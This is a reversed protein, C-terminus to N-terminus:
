TVVLTTVPRSCTGEGHIYSSWMESRETKALRQSAKAVRPPVAMCVSWATSVRYMPLSLFMPQMVEAKSRRRTSHVSTQRVDPYAGRCGVTERTSDNLLVYPTYAGV